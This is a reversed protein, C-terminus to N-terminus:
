SEGCYQDIAKQTSKWYGVPDQNAILFLKSLNFYSLTTNLEELGEEDSDDYTIVVRYNSYNQNFLSTLHYESAYPKSSRTAYVVACIPMEALGEIMRMGDRLRKIEIIEAQKREEL